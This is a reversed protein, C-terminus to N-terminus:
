AEEAPAEIENKRSGNQEFGQSEIESSRCPAEFSAGLHTGARIDATGPGKLFLFLKILIGDFASHQAFLEIKVRCLWSMSRPASIFILQSGRSSAKQSVVIDCQPNGAHKNNNSTKHNASSIERSRRTFVISIKLKM